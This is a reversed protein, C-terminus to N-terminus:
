NTKKLEVDIQRTQRCGKIKEKAYGDNMDYSIKEVFISSIGSIAEMIGDILSNRSLVMFQIFEMLFASSVTLFEEKM